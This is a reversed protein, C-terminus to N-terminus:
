SRRCQLSLIRLSTKPIGDEFPVHNRRESTVSPVNKFGDDTSAIPLVIIMGARFTEAEPHALPVEADVADNETLLVRQVLRTGM